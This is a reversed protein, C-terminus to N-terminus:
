TFGTHVAVMCTPSTIHRCVVVLLTSFSTEGADVIKRVLLFVASLRYRVSRGDGFM